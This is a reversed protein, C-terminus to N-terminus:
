QHGSAAAKITEISRWIPWSRRGFVELLTFVSDGPRTKAEKAGKEKAANHGKDKWKM